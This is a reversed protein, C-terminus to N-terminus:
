MKEIFEDVTNTDRLVERLKDIDIVPKQTLDDVGFFDNMEDMFSDFKDLLQKAFKSEFDNDSVKIINSLFYKWEQPKMVNLNVSNEQKELSIFGLEIAHNVLDSPEGYISGDPNKKIDRMYNEGTEIAIQQIIM